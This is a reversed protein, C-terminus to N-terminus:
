LLSASNAATPHAHITTLAPNVATKWGLTTPINSVTADTTPKTKKRRRTALCCGLRKGSSQCFTNSLFHSDRPCYRCYCGWGLMPLVPPGLVILHSSDPHGARPKQPRPKQSGRTTAQVAGRSDGPLGTVQGRAGRVSDYSVRITM